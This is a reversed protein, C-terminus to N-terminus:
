ACDRQDRCRSLVAQITDGLVAIPVPKSLFGNMGAEQTERLAQQNANATLAVIPIRGVEGPLQRIAETAEIGGMVPMHLDMLILQHSGQKVKEVALAGDVAYEITYGLSKLMKGVVIRNIQNDEVVLICTEEPDFVIQNPPSQQPKGDRTADGSGQSTLRLTEETQIVVAQSSSGFTLSCTFVSGAGEESTVTIDGKMLAALARSITLGLGTGGYQRTASNDLQSFPEFLHPIADSGIGIGTDRIVLTVQAEGDGRAECSLHASVQGAPTFKLANGLLNSTVRKFQATDGRLLIPLGAAITVDLRTPADVSPAFGQAVEILVARPDFPEEKLLLAGSESGAFCLTDEILALLSNGSAQIMQLQEAQEKDLDTQTLAETLGLVAVLPTRLEHSMTALFNSKVELAQQLETTRERVRDELSLRLSDLHKILANFSRTVKRVEGPGVERLDFEEGDKSANLAAASLQQLPGILSRSTWRFLVLISLLYALGLQQTRPAIRGRIEQAAKANATRKVDLDSRTQRILDLLGISNTDFEAWADDIIDMRDAGNAYAATEVLRQLHQIQEGASRLQERGSKASDLDGLVEIQKRTSDELDAATTVLYTNEGTLVLDAILLFQALGAELRKMETQARTDLRVRDTAEDLSRYEGVLLLALLLGALTTICLLTGIHSRISM